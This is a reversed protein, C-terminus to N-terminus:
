PQLSKNPHISKRRNSITRLDAYELALPPVRMEKFGLVSARQTVRDLQGLRVLETKLFLYQSRLEQNSKEIKSIQRVRKECQHIYAVYVIILFFVYGIFWGHKQVLVPKAWREPDLLAWLNWASHQTQNTKSTM